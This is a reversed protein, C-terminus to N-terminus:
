LSNDQNMTIESILSTIQEHYELIAFEYQINKSHKNGSLENSGNRRIMKM